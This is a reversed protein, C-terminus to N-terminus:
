AFVPRAVRVGARLREAVSPVREAERLASARMRLLPTLRATHQFPDAVVRSDELSIAAAPRGDIEGILVRGHLPRQSDLRAIERVAPADAAASSRMVYANAPFM